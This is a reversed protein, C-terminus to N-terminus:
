RAAYSSDYVGNRLSLQEDATRLARQVTENLKHEAPTRNVSITESARRDAEREAWTRSDAGLDNYRRVIEITELASADFGSEPAKLGTFPCEPPEVDNVDWQLGCAGCAMTDSYQRAQCTRPPKTVGTAM